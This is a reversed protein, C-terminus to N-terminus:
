RDSKDPNAKEAEEETVGEPRPVLGEDWLYHGVTQAILHNGLASPHLFDLFFKRGKFYRSSLRHDIVPVGRAEALERMGDLYRHALAVFDDRTIATEFPKFRRAPMRGGALPPEVLVVEVGAQACLDLMAELNALYAELAAPELHASADVADRMSFARYLASHRALLSRWAPPQRRVLLEPYWPRVLSFMVDNWLVSLLVVQPRFTVLLEELYLRTQASSYSPVGANLVLVPIQPERRNLGQGLAHPYTHRDPVKWGFTTSEGLAAIRFHAEPDPPLPAGRFGDVNITYLDSVFDPRLAFGRTPHPTVFDRDRLHLDPDDFLAPAPNTFFQRAVLEATALVALPVGLNVALLLALRRKRAM